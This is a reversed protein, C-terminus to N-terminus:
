YQSCIKHSITVILGFLYHHHFLFVDFLRLYVQTKKSIFKKGFHELIGWFTNIESTYLSICANQAFLIWFGMLFSCFLPFPPLFAPLFLFKRPFLKPFISNISLTTIFFNVFFIFFLKTSYFFNTGKCECNLRPANRSRNRSYISIM